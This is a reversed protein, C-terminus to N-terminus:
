HISVVLNTYIQGDSIRCVPIFTLKCLSGDVLYRRLTQMGLRWVKYLFHQASKYFMYVDPSVYSIYM